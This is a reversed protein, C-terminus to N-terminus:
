SPIGNTSGISYKYLGSLQKNITDALPKIQNEFIGLELMEFEICLICHNILELNSSYAIKYFQAQDKGKKRGSGEAINACISFAARNIQSKIQFENSPFQKTTKFIIVNLAKANKWVDLKEFSYERKM